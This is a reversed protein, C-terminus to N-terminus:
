KWAIHLHDILWCLIDILKWLGLLVLPPLVAFCFGLGKGLSNFASADM